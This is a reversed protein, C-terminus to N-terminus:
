QPTPWPAPAGEEFNARRFDGLTHWKVDSISEKSKFLEYVSALVEKPVGPEGGFLKAWFPRVENFWLLWRSNEDNLLAVGVDFRRGEHRFSLFWGSTEHVFEESVQWGLKAFEDALWTVVDKGEDTESAGFMTSRFSVFTRLDDM